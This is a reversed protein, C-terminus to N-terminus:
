LHSRGPTAQGVIRLSRRTALWAKSRQNVWLQADAPTLYIGSLQEATGDPWLAEIVYGQGSAHPCVKFLTGSDPMDTPRIYAM